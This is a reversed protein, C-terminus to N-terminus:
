AAVSLIARDEVNARNEDAVTEVDCASLMDDTDLWVTSLEDRAAEKTRALEAEAETVCVRGEETTDDMESSLLVSILEMTETMAEVTVGDLLKTRVLTRDRSDETVTKDVVTAAEDVTITEDEVTTDIWITDDDSDAYVVDAAREVETIELVCNTDEATLSLRDLM